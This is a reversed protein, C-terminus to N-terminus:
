PKHAHLAPQRPLLQEMPSSAYKKLKKKKTQFVNFDFKKKHLNKEEKCGSARRSRGLNFAVVVARASVAQTLALRRPASIRAFYSKTRIRRRANTIAMAVAPM